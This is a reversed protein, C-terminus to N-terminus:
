EGKHYSEVIYNIVSVFNNGKTTARWLVYTIFSISYKRKKKYSEMSYTIFDKTYAITKIAMYDVISILLM